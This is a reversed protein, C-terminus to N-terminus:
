LPQTESEVSSPRRRSAEEPSASAPAEGGSAVRAFGLEPEVARVIQEMTECYAAYDVAEFRGASLVFESSLEVADEVAKVQCDARAFRPDVPCAIREPGALRHGEPLVVRLTSTFRMPRTLRVPTLRRSVPTASLLWRAAPSPISGGLRGEHSQFRGRCQYELHVRLPETLEDLGRLGVRDVTIGSGGFLRHLLSERTAAPMPLLWQRLGAAQVGRIELAETVLLDTLNTLTVTRTSTIASGARDWGPLEILRPQSPDLVLASGGFLDGSTARVLDAGKDTCDVFAGGRVEPLFAVMHDFQDLSPTGTQVPGDSRVLVLHAPLHVAKALAEFLVAHDKCDGYRNRITDAPVNPIRARRGFEIAKYTLNTQVYRALVAARESPSEIGEVLKRALVEGAADVALRDQISNLYDSALTPWEAAPDGVWATPLFESAPPQLPEWRAVPPDDVVWLRGADFTRMEIEPSTVIRLDSDTGSLFLASQRVPLHRSFPFELFTPEKSKGLLRTTYIVELLCGAALGPVPVNLVKQQSDGVGELHDLVYSVDVSGASVPDGSPGTVRVTNVFLGESLPDFPIQVTSFDAVGAGDLLRLVLYDTIRFDKGRDFAVAKARRVYYAGYEKGYDPGSPDGPLALIEPLPVPAIPEKVLSNSGEGLMGSVHDLFERIEANAPARKLAEEFSLKAERYWKLAYESRGRSYFAQASDSGRDVMEQSVARAEAALDAQLLADVLAAAVERNFPSRAREAKLVEVARVPEGQEGLLEAERLRLALSDGGKQHERLAGLAAGPGRVEALVSLYDPFHDENRYGTAFLAAYNTIAQESLGTQWQYYALYARVEPEDPHTALSAEAFRLAEEPRELHTWATLANIAYLPRGEDARAAAKLVQLAREYNKGKFHFLGAQNLVGARTERERPTFEDRSLLLPGPEEFDVRALADEMRQSGSPSQRTEWAAVLYGFGGGQLVQLRYVYDTGEVEREYDFELGSLNGRTLERRQLGREELYAIDMTALLGAALADEEVAEGALWVPVVAMGASVNLAGFDAEPFDEALTDYPTWPSGLVSVRYGYRSSVFDGTFGGGPPRAQRAPDIQAFREYLPALEERLRGADRQNGYGILQYAFGNTLVYWNQYLVPRGRITAEFEVWVGDIGNIRRAEERLLRSSQARSSMLGQSVEALGASDLSAQTGLSEAVVMLFAQPSQRMYGMVAEPNIKTSDFAVWPSEPARFRFNLEDFTRVEGPVGAARPFPGRRLRNVFGVAMVGVLLLSLVLASIAQGRGQQYRDPHRRCEGLGLVAFVCGLVLLVIAAVGAIAAFASAQSGPGLRDNVFGLVAAVVPVLLVFMFALAGKGNVGPRRAMQACKLAAILFLFSVGARPLWLGWEADAFSAFFPTIGVENLRALGSWAEQLRPDSWQSEQPFM